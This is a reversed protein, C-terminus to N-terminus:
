LPFDIPCVLSYCISAVNIRERKLMCLGSPQYGFGLRGWYVWLVARDLFSYRYNCPKKQMLLVGFWTGGLDSTARDWNVFSSNWKKRWLLSKFSTSPVIALRKRFYSLSAPQSKGQLGPEMKRPSSCANWGMPLSGGATKCEGATGMPVAQLWTVEVSRM